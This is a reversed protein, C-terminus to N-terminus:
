KYKNDVDKDVHLGHRSDPDIRTVSQFCCSVNHYFRPRYKDLLDKDLRLVHMRGQAQAPGGPSGAPEPPVLRTSTLPPLASCVVPEERQVLKQLSPHYPDTDPIRCSPSFVLYGAPLGADAWAGADALGIM